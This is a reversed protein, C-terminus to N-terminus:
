KVDQEEVPQWFYEGHQEKRAMDAAKGAAALSEFFGYHKGKGAVKLYVFYKSKGRPDYYVNRIGTISKRNGYNYSNTEYTAERLNLWRNDSKITNKHDVCKPIQGTMYLFALRHLGYKKGQICVDVYGKKTKTGAIKGRGKSGKVPVKWTFIGTDQNYDLLEKLKDQTIM